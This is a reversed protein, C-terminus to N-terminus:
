STPEPNPRRKLDYMLFMYVLACREKKGDETFYIYM